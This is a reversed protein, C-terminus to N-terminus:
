KTVLIPNFTKVSKIPSIYPWYGYITPYISLVCIAAILKRSSNWTWRVCDSWKKLILGVYETHLEKNQEIHQPSFSILKKQCIKTELPNDQYQQICKFYQLHFGDMKCLAPAVQVWYSLPYRASRKIHFGTLEFRPTFMVSLDLYM